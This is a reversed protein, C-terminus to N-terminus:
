SLTGVIQVTLNAGPVSSGVQDIDVTLYDGAVMSTIAPVSTTDVNSGGAVIKPRASQTTFLTVGNKNVDVIVDAGTPVTAVSIIVNSITFNAPSYWRVAGAAVVLNGIYTMPIVQTNPGSAGTSGTPGRVNGANITTTDFRTLILNDGVVDGDIICSDEIAQMREATFVTVTAM